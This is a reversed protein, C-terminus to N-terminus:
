MKQPPFSILIRTYPAHHQAAHPTGCGTNRNRPSSSERLPIRPSKVQERHPPSSSPAHRLRGLLAQRPPASQHDAISLTSFPFPLRVFALHKACFLLSLRLAALEDMNQRFAVARHAKGHIGAGVKPRSQCSCTRRYGCLGKFPVHRLMASRHESNKKHSVKMRFCIARLAPKQIVM